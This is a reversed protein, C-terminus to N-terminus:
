SFLAPLLSPVATWRMVPEDDDDHDTLDASVTLRDGSATRIEFLPFDEEVTDPDSGLVIEVHVTPPSTLARITEVIRRDINEIVIRASSAGDDGDGPAAFDFGFATFTHGRSICDVRDRVFRLPEPLDAHAITLLILLPDGSNDAQLEHTFTPSPM